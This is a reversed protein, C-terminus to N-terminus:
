RSPHDVRRRSDVGCAGHPQRPKRAVRSRAFPLVAPFASESRDVGVIACMFLREYQRGTTFLNTILVYLIPIYLLPRAEWVAVTTDHGGRGLGYVLGLFVFATFVCMPRWLVGRKFQWASDGLM